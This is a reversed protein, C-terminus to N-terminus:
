TTGAITLNRYGLAKLLGIQERELEVMRGLWQHFLFAAVILFITPMTRSMNRLMDLGHEAWAHSPLDKRGYAARGGYPDLFVDLRKIVETESAGRLLKLTVSSFAGDLNYV